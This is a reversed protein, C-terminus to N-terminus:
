KSPAACVFNTYDNTDGSGNYRAVQPYPCLPRTMQVGKARNDEVYKTAVIEGPATSKEVWQELADFIGHGMGKATTSGLQGFSTAGPGGSCHQMGPIMYLRVFKNVNEAGMTDTVSQYYNITNSPSIAADNWGHYLILKGGRSKFRHLDPDVANLSHATKEDATQQAVEVNATLVNWSPDEFVMYRFYNELFGNYLSQGPGEGIIWLGWGGRGEEAGPMLGPFIQKGHSDKGGAYIKKLAAVQPAILCNRSNTGGCLLASPDFDCRPPNGIVGDKVGDQMDCAKLTADAIASIKTNSIYAVPNGYLVKTVDIGATLLHTWFNAPAGALIGDFDDPFRQAEMLAERGGDSCSDFYSHDAARGYFARIIAKANETTMHLGRYGFDAVKEPHKYAWSADVGDAEHGTDTAATAYARKLNGAMSSFGISGAFGGNGVGLFKGNWGAAPMWVEFRITSDSTPRIIGAVRCFAPLNEVPGGYPPDFKGAAVSQAITITTDPLALSSLSNCDTAGAPLAFGPLIVLAALIRM